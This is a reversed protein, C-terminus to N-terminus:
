NNQNTSAVMIQGLSIGGDNAPVQHHILVNFHNENLLKVTKNLLTLNQWVGGSLAVDSLSTERRIELCIDKCMWAISNHFKAAITSPKVKNAWDKVIATILGNQDVVGSSYGMTYLGLEQPDCINELEIAAQGEYTITQRIGLISSIADFLRGMSTTLPTNIHQKLQKQLLQLEITDFAQVPLLSPDLEIGSSILYSIAIRSPNRIASDGGPLHTESLHYKRTFGHYSGILFEGGWIAGDSGYGTGDFIIGIVDEESGWNNDSLVSALHAHHHQVRVLPLNEAESRKVAYQTSLYDPHLDAAILQPTIKFISEFHKVGSEFANLTEYNELDGIHHSIFAYNSRSVCFTNKLQAGCALMEPVIFPVRIPNPAYGRSRRIIYPRQNFIRVVSDDMRSYIERNHLLFGDVLPSLQELAEADTYAIPEESLNGSTMVLVDPMDEAPELLLLHLPTYPLMFGLHNQNIAVVEPIPCDHRKNLLVIPHQPSELLNSEQTSLECYKNITKLDFAMLALPKESRQKKDILRQVAGTSNANCSIQFGGLGKIGLIKGKKLLDRSAQIASEGELFHIGDRTFRVKPGCTACAVPQAHFRRNLPDEYEALCDPCLPFSAMTTLPRDYPTSKIITFRPGCNTCNIFPYRYRRNSPDFMERQCDSCISVDPSIPVFENVTVQSPSIKFPGEFIENSPHIVFTHIQSLIPPHDRLEVLFKEISTLGGYIRIEVGTSTNCINGSLQYKQALSFVYPRFGVGQVIGTISIRFGSLGSTMPILNQFRDKEDAM